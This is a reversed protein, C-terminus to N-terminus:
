ASHWKSNCISEACKWCQMSATINLIMISNEQSPRPCPIVLFKNKPCGTYSCLFFEMQDPWHDPGDLGAEEIKVLHWWITVVICVWFYTRNPESPSVRLFFHPYSQLKQASVPCAIQMRTGERARPIQPLTYYDTSVANYAYNWHVTDSLQSFSFLFYPLQEFVVPVSHHFVFVLSRAERCTHKRMNSSSDENGYSSIEAPQTGPM